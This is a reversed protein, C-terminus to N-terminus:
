SVVKQGGFQQRGVDSAVTHHFMPGNATDLRLVHLDLAQDEAIPRPLPAPSESQERPEPAGFLASLRVPVPVPVPVTITVKPPKDM